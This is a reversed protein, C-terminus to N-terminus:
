EKLITGSSHVYTKAYCRGNYVDAKFWFKVTIQYSNSWRSSSFKEEISSPGGTEPLLFIANMNNQGKYLTDRVPALLSACMQFSSLISENTVFGVM